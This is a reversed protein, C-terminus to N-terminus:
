DQSSTDIDCNTVTLPYEIFAMSLQRDLMAVAFAPYAGM